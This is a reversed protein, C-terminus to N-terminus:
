REQTPTAETKPFILAFSGPAPQFLETEHSLHERDFASFWPMNRWVENDQVFEPVILDLEIYRGQSAKALAPGFSWSEQGPRPYLDNHLAGGYSLIVEAGSDPAHLLAAVSKQTQEAVLTLLRAVSEDGAALAADYEACEPALARPEIGLRQAVKGLTLFENQNSPAQTATVPEQAKKVGAATHPKCNAVLLEIVIHKSKGALRPLLREAFRRTSSHIGATGRQAHAEGLALIRPESQLVYDFAAEPTAFALCGLAGCPRGAAAAGPKSQGGGIEVASPGAPAPVPVPASAPAPPPAVSGVPALPACAAAFIWALASRSRAAM